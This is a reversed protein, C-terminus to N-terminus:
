CVFDDVQPLLISPTLFFQRLLEAHRTLRDALPLACLRNGIQPAHQCHCVEERHRRIVEQAVLVFRRGRRCHLVARRVAVNAADAHFFRAGEEGEAPLLRGCAGQRDTQAHKRRNRQQHNEGARAFSRRRAHAADDAHHNQQLQNHCRNDDEQPLAHFALFVFILLLLVNLRSVAHRAHHLFLLRRVAFGARPM